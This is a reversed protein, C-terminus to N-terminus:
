KFVRVCARIKLSRMKTKLFNYSKLFILRSFLCSMGIKLATGVAKVAGTKIIKNCNKFSLLSFDCSKLWSGSKGNKKALFFEFFPFKEFSM